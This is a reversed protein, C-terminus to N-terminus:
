RRMSEQEKLFLGKTLNLKSQLMLIKIAKHHNSKNSYTVGRNFFAETFNEDIKIAADYQDIAKDFDKTINFVFGLNFHALKNKPEISIAQQYCNIAEDIKNISTM